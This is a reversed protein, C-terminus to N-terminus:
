VETPLPLGHESLVLLATPEIGVLPVLASCPSVGVDRLRGHAICPRGTFKVFDIWYPVTIVHSCDYDSNLLRSGALTARGNPQALFSRM